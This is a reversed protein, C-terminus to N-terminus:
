VLSKSTLIQIPRSYLIKCKEQLRRTSKNMRFFNSFDNWGMQYINFVLYLSIMGVDSLYTTFFGFGSLLYQLCSLLSIMGVPMFVFYVLFWFLGSVTLIFSHILDLKIKANDSHYTM